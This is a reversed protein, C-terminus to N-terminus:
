QFDSLGSPSPNSQVQFRSGNHTSELLINLRGVMKELSSETYGHCLVLDPSWGLEEGLVMQRALNLSVAARMSPLLRLFDVETLMLDLFYRSAFVVQLFNDSMLLSTM